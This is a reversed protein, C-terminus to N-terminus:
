EEQHRPQQKRANSHIRWRIAHVTCTIDSLGRWSPRPTDKEDAITNAGCTPWLSNSLSGSDLPDGIGRAKSSAMALKARIAEAEAQLVAYVSSREDPLPRAALLLGSQSFTTSAM